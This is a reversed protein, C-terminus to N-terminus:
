LSRQDGRRVTSTTSAPVTGSAENTASRETTRSTRGSSSRAGAATLSEQRDPPRRTRRVLHAWFALAAAAFLWWQAAYSLNRWRTGSQDPLLQEAPVVAPGGPAAPDQEALLVHGPYRQAPPYPLAALLEGPSLLGVQGAPLARAETTGASRDTEPPLLTGRVRVAGGPVPGAADPDPVWGRVVLAIAGGTRLPTVVLLGTRGDLRRQPVLLQNAADYRGSVRVARGVASEPLRGGPDLAEALAVPAGPAPPPVPTAAGLQWRGLLLCAAVVGVTLLHLALWRPTLLTPVM